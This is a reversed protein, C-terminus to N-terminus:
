IKLIADVLRLTFVRAEDDWGLDLCMHGLMVTSQVKSLAFIPMWQDIEPRAGPAHGPGSRAGTSESLEGRRLTVKGIPTTTRGADAIEQVIFQVSRSSPPLEITSEDGFVCSFGV